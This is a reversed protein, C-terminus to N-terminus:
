RVLDEVKLAQRVRRESVVCAVVRVMYAVGLGILVQATFLGFTNGSFAVASGFALWGAGVSADGFKEIAWAKVRSMRHGPNIAGIVSIPGGALLPASMAVTTWTDSEEIARSVVFDAVFISIIIQAGLSFAVLSLVLTYPHQMIRDCLSPPEHAAVYPSSPM